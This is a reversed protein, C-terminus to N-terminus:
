RFVRYGTITSSFVDCLGQNDVEKWPDSSFTQSLSSAVFLIKNWAVTSWGSGQETKFSFFIAPLYLSQTKPSKGRWHCEHKISVCWTYMNLYPFNLFFKSLHHFGTTVLNRLPSLICWRGTWQASHPSFFSKQLVNKQWVKQQAKVKQIKLAM